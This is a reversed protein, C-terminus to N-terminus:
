KTSLTYIQLPFHHIIPYPSPGQNKYMRRTSPRPSAPSQAIKTCFLITLIQAYNYYKISKWWYKGFNRCVYFVALGLGRSDSIYLYIYIYIYICIIIKYTFIYIYITKYINMYKNKYIYM